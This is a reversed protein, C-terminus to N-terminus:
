VVPIRMDNIVIKM